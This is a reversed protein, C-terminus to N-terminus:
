FTLLVISKLLPVNLQIFSFISTIPLFVNSLFSYSLFGKM